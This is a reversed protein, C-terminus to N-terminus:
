LEVMRGRLDIRWDGEMFALNDRVHHPWDGKVPSELECVLTDRPRALVGELNDVQEDVLSKVLATTM